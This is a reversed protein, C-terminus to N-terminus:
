GDEILTNILHPILKYISSIAFSKQEGKFLATGGGQQGRQPRYIKVFTYTVLM